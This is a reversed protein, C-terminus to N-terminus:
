KKLVENLTKRIEEGRLDRKVVTGDPAFLIIQPIGQIGYIDTPIKQADIIHNWPMDNQKIFKETAEKKDWVAVSLVTIENGFDKNIERL